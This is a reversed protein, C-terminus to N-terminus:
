RVWRDAVCSATTLDFSHPTNPLSIDSVSCGMKTFVGMKESSFYGKFLFDNFYIVL